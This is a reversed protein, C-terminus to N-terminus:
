VLYKVGMIEHVVSCFGKLSIRIGGNQLQPKHLKLINLRNSLSLWKNHSIFLLALTKICTQRVESYLGKSSYYVEILFSVPLNWLWNHRGCKIKDLAYGTLMTLNLAKSKNLISFCCSNCELASFPLCSIYLSQRKGMGKIIGRWSATKLNIKCKNKLLVSPTM